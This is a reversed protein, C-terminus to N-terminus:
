RLYSLVTAGIACGASFALLLQPWVSSTRYIPVQNAVPAKELSAHRVARELANMPALRNNDIKWFQPPIGRVPTFDPDVLHPLDKSWATAGKVVRANNKTFYVVTPM